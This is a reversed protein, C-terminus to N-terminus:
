PALRQVRDALGARNAAAIFRRDATVVHTEHHLALALYVCDYIPHGIEVALSLARELHPEMAVLVVPANALESFYM